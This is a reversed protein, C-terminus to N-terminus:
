PRLLAKIESNLEISFKQAGSTNLHDDNKFDNLHFNPDFEHNLFHVNPWATVEDIFLKRRELKENKERKTYSNYMPSALLVVQIGHDNCFTIMSKLCRANNEFNQPSVTTHRNRLREDATREIQLSDYKLSQFVGPFDNLVFGQENFQYKYERPDFSRKLHDNFFEPESLYLSIKQFFPIHGCTVDYFHYYWSLRFYDQGNFEELSHYDLELVVVKLQKLRNAFHFFLASDLYVDQGGYAINATKLDIFQPNIANQNHSSGLVLMEIQPENNKIYKAKLNFANDSYRIFLELAVFGILFPLVFLLLKVLFSKM